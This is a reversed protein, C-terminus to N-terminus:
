LGALSEEAIERVDADTDRTLELLCPRSAADRSLGLLHAADARVRPDPDRALECLRPLLAALAPTGAYDEFVMGAGLRVNLSAEPNAVIPLLHALRAPAEAVLRLVQAAGGTKLFDHFADPMGDVDVCRKAWAALEAASMVGTLEYPGLRLWPVSRVGQAVARDPLRELNVVELSAVDGRKVLESLGALVAPCHPCHSSIFLLATPYRTDSMAQRTSPLVTLSVAKGAHFWATVLM